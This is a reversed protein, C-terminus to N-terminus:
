GVTLKLISHNTKYTYWYKRNLKDIEATVGQFCDHITNVMKLPEMVFGRGSKVM